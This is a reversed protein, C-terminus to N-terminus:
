IRQIRLCKTVRRGRGQVALSDVFRPGFTRYADSVDRSAVVFTTAMAAPQPMPFEWPFGQAGRAGSRGLVELARAASCRSRGLPRAGRAGSRGLVELAQANPASRGSACRSFSPLAELTRVASCRSRGTSVTRHRAGRAGSRGAIVTRCQAPRACRASRGTFADAELTRADPAACAMRLAGLPRYHDDPPCPRRPPTATSRGAPEPARHRPPTANPSRGPALLDCAFSFPRM